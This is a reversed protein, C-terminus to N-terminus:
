TTSVLWYRQGICGRAGLKTHNKIPNRGGQGQPRKGRRYAPRSSLRRPLAVAPTLPRSFFKRNWWGGGGADGYRAPTTARPGGAAKMGGPRHAANDGRM